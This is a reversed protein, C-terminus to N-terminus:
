FQVPGVAGIWHQVKTPDQEGMYFFHCMVPKVILKGGDDPKM